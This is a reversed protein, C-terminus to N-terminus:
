HCKPRPNPDKPFDASVNHPHISLHCGRAMHMRAIPARYPSQLPYPHFDPNPGPPTPHKKNYIKLVPHGSLEAFNNQKM